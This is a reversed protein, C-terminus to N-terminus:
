VGSRFLGYWNGAVVLVLGQGFRRILLFLNFLGPQRSKYIYSSEGKIRAALQESRGWVILATGLCSEFLFPGYNAGDAGTVVFISCCNSERMG